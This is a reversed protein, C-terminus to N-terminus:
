LQNDCFQSEGNRQVRFLKTGAQDQCSIAGNPFSNCEVRFVSCILNLKLLDKWVKRLHVGKTKYFLAAILKELVTM